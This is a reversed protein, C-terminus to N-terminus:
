GCLYAGQKRCNELLNEEQITKQVALSAACALPNAQYTHGHKWFGKGAAYIASSIQESM